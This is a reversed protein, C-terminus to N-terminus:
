AARQNGDGMSGMQQAWKRLTCYRSIEYREVAQASAILGADLAGRPTKRSQSPPAYFFTPESGYITTCGSSHNSRTVLPSPCNSSLAPPKLPNGQAKRTNFM